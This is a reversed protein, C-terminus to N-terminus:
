VLFSMVAVRFTGSAPDAAVGNPAHRVTVTDAASVWAFFTSTATVSGDPAGVFVPSGAVAGTVPVTLDAVTGIATNPFDLTLQRSIINIIPSSVTPEGITIGQTNEFVIAHTSASSHRLTLEGSGGDTQIVPPGDAARFTMRPPAGQFTIDPNSGIEAYVSAGAGGVTAIGGSIEVTSGGQTMAVRTDGVSFAATGAANSYIEFGQGAQTFVLAGTTMDSPYHLGPEAATGTLFQNTGDSSKFQIGAVTVAQIIDTTLDGGGGGGGSGLFGGM